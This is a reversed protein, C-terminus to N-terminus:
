EDAGGGNLAEFCAGSEGTALGVIAIAIASLLRLAPTGAQGRFHTRASLGAANDGALKNAHSEYRRLALNRCRAAM